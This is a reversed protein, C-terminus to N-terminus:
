LLLLDFNSTIKEEDLLIEEDDAKLTYKAHHNQTVVYILDIFQNTSMLYGLWSVNDPSRKIMFVKGDAKRMVKSCAPYQPKLELQYRM